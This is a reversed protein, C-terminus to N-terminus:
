LLTVELGEGGEVELVHSGSPSRTVSLGLPSEGLRLGSLEIRDLWDPLSARLRLTGAAANPEFGLFVDLLHVIAGSAWAQPVNAGLYQVPFSAEDRQLGAFLEPLTRNALAAAAELMARAIRHSEEDFGYRRLGDAILVCDHPWVSGLQYSFPNFSPHDASLTRIGWGSWLDDAFLRKAVLAARGEEIARYYLLQGPNSSVTEIPRKRGDLGLYYTGEAEWFFREEILEALRSAERRLREAGADDEYAQELTGAWARKAAVVLGQLECTAIPLEPLSGDAHLIADHADKWAQNFYGRQSRTRYEQIGDGDEDGQEDVWDLAAEVHPRLRDLEERDASWRWSAAATLVFLPTADHSGYYPTHPVLHLAALEGRRIEHEIKGPQMDRDDDWGTAQLAALARLTGRALEGTIPLAQLAVTLADRGFLTVFWPVGAAPISYRAADGEDGDLDLFGPRIRARLRLQALDDIAQHITATTAPDSTAVSAAAFDDRAGGAAAGLLQHCEGITPLPEDGELVPRWLLCCSWSAGPELDLPFLLAGNAYTVEGSARRAEVRLGRRFGEHQFQNTLVLGDPDWTSRVTGRRQLRLDKVDFIDAFDSHISVAMVLEVPEGCYNTLEYDEHVGRGLVRDLRLHLTHEPVELGRDDVFHENTFEYRASPAQIQSSNLLLPAHRGIELHYGSVLRTDAIFYGLRAEATITADRESILVEDDLHTAVVAPGVHVEM